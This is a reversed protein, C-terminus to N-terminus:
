NLIPAKLIVELKASSTHIDKEDICYGLYEVESQLFVCKEQVGQEKLLQLVRELSQLYEEDTETEGTM